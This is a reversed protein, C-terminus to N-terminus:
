TFMQRTSNRQAEPSSFDLIHNRACHQGTFFTHQMDAVEAELGRALAEHTERDSIGHQAAVLANPVAMVELLSSLINKQQEQIIAEYQAREYQSLSSGGNCGVIGQTELAEQLHARLAVCETQAKDKYLRAQELAEDYNRVLDAEQQKHQRKLHDVEEQLADYRSHFDSMVEKETTLQLICLRAADLENSLQSDRYQKSAQIKELQSLQQQLQEREVAWLAKEQRHDDEITKVMSEFEDIQARGHELEEEQLDCVEKIDDREKTLGEIILTTRKAEEHAARRAAEVSTLSDHEMRSDPQWPSERTLVTAKLSSVTTEAEAKETLHKAEAQALQERTRRLEENKDNLQQHWGEAARTASIQADQLQMRLQELLIQHEQSASAVAVQETEGRRQEVTQIAKDVGLETQRRLPPMAAPVEASKSEPGKENATCLESQLPHFEKQSQPKGSVDISETPEAAIKKKLASLEAATEAVTKQATALRAMWEHTDRRHQAELTQKEGEAARLLSELEVMRVPDATTGENWTHPPPCTASALTTELADHRSEAVGLTKEEAATAQQKEFRQQASVPAQSAEEPAMLRSTASDAVIRQKEGAFPVVLEPRVFLGQGPPCCFYRRGKVSGDNRGFTGVLEVGSWVGDAFDTPGVYRLIGRRQEQMPPTPLVTVFSELPLDCYSSLLAEAASM